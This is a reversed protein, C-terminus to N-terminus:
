SQGWFADGVRLCEEMAEVSRLALRRWTDYSARDKIFLQAVDENGDARQEAELAREWDERTPQLVPPEIANDVIKRLRVAIAYHGASCLATLILASRIFPNRNDAPCLLQRATRATWGGAKAVVQLPPEKPYQVTHTRQGIITGM